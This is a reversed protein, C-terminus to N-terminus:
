LAGVLGVLSNFSLGLSPSVQQRYKLMLRLVGEEDLFILKKKDEMFQKYTKGQKRLFSLIKNSEGGMLIDVMSAAKQQDKMKLATDIVIEFQKDGKFSKSNSKM